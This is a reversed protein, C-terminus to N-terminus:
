FVLRTHLVVYDIFTLLSMGLVKTNGEVTNRALVVLQSLGVHCHSCFVNSLERCLLPLLWADCPSNNALLHLLPLNEKGSFKYVEMMSAPHRPLGIKSRGVVPKNLRCDCVSCFIFLAVFM